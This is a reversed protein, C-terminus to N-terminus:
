GGFLGSFLKGVDKKATATTYGLNARIQDSMSMGHSPTSYKGIQGKTDLMSSPSPPGSMRSGEDRYKAQSDLFAQVDSRMRPAASVPAVPAPPTLPQTAAGTIPDFGTMRAFYEYQDPRQEKLRQMDATFMPYSSYGTMGGTTVTPMGSMDLEAPAELGFASAMSAVNRAAAAEAPNIAAVDIGTYPLRGVEYIERSRKVAERAADEYWDPLKTEQVQRSSSGGM